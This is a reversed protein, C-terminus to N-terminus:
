KKHVVDQNKEEETLLVYLKKRIRHLKVKLNSLSLGTIGTLDDLSKEETYFLLILARDDPPLQALARDLWELQQATGYSGLAEQVEEESVNTLQSDEISLYEMKKKRVASIAMNYAIRYLWNAFNGEGRFSELQRFAKIFVDETLEEADERNQVIRFILAFLPQSYKDLLCAFCSTDGALIRNIYYTDSLGEM